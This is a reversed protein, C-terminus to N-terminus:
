SKLFIFLVKKMVYWKIKNWLMGYCEIVYLKNWLMGNWKMIYCEM